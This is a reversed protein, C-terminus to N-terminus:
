VKSMLDNRMEISLRMALEIGYIEAGKEHSKRYVWGTNEEWTLQLGVLLEKLVYCVM